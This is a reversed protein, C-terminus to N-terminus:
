SEVMDLGFRHTQNQRNHRHAPTGSGAQEWPKQKSMRKGLGKQSRHFASNEPCTV